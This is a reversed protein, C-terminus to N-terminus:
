NVYAMGRGQWEGVTGYGEHFDAHYGSIDSSCKRCNLPYTHKQYCNEHFEAHYGYSVSRLCTAWMGDRSPRHYNVRAMGMGRQATAKLLRKWFPMTTAHCLRPMAHTFWVPRMTYILISICHLGKATGCPMPTAHSCCPTHSNAKLKMQIKEYVSNKNINNYIKGDGLFNVDYVPRDVSSRIWSCQMTPKHFELTHLFYSM